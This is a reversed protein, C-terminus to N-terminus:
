DIPIEEDAANEEDIATGTDVNAETLVNDVIVLDEDVVETEVVRDEEDVLAVGVLAPFGGFGIVLVSFQFIPQTLEDGSPNLRGITPILPCHGHGGIMALTPSVILILTTLLKTLSVVAM